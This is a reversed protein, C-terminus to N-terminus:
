DIKFEQALIDTIVDINMMIQEHVDIKHMESLVINIINDYYEKSTNELKDFEEKMKYSVFPWPAILFEYECRSWFMYSSARKIWEKLTKKDTVKSKDFNFKKNKWSDIFYPLINYYSYKKNNFDFILVNFVKEKRM